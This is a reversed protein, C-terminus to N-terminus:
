GFITKIQYPHTGKVIEIGCKAKMKDVISECHPCNVLCPALHIKTPQEDLPTNEIEMLALRPVLKIGPCSGCSTLGILEAKQEKYRIFEGDYRNFAVLCRSCGICVEDMTMKCGIILVREM